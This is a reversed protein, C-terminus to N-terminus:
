SNSEEQGARIWEREFSFMSLSALIALVTSLSYHFTTGMAAMAGVGTAALLGILFFYSGSRGALRARAREAHETSAKGKLEHLLFALNVLGLGALVQGASETMESGPSAAALLMGLLAARVLLGLLVGKELWLDRGRCQAFLFATYGSATAAFPVAIWRLATSYEGMGVLQALLSLAIVLGFGLLAWAGKVLWSDKNGRTFLFLAREPHGLDAILLAGTLALFAMATIELEIGFEMGLLAFFPAMLMIGASLNKTFLYSWVHWGWAAKRETNLVTIPDESGPGPVGAPVEPAQYRRDSWIWSDPQRTKGPNIGEELADIYWVRPSTGKETRRRSTPQSTVLQAVESNLDEMDGALIAGEPCVVVCAPKLGVEVRHACFHCKEAVGSDQNFYLAEYPCAQLCSSCGICADRDLDVIGDDRKSLANVPCITKCPADDCHNCRLVSFHRRVDPYTGKEDYKVWTRFNGVPVDNESKCVVTCAHCGICKRQDIVFGFATM